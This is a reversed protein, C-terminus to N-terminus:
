TLFGAALRVRATRRSASASGRPRASARASRCAPSSGGPRASRAAASGRGAPPTRSAARAELAAELARAGLLADVPVQAAGAEHPPQLLVHQRLQRLLALHDHRDRQLVLLSYRSASRSTTAQSCSCGSSSESSSALTWAVSRASRSACSLVSRRSAARPLSPAPAPRSRRSGPLGLLRQDDEGRWRSIWSITTAASGPRAARRRRRCPRGLAVGGDLGELVGVARLQDDARRADGALADREGARGVDGEQVELPARRHVVLGLVAQWRMPWRSATM